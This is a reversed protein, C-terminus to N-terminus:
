PHNKRKQYDYQKDQATFSPKRLRSKELPKSPKTAIDSIRSSRSIASYPLLSRYSENPQICNHSMRCTLVDQMVRTGGNPARRIYADSESSRRYDAYRQGLYPPDRGLFPARPPTVTHFAELLIGRLLGAEGSIVSPRSSGGEKGAREGVGSTSAPGTSLTGLWLGHLNLCQTFM